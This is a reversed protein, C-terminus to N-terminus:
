RLVTRDAAKILAEENLEYGFSPHTPTYADVGYIKNAPNLVPDIASKKFVVTADGYGGSYVDPKTVAISPSSFAGQDLATLLNRQLFVM